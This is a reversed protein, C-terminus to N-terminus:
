ALRNALMTNPTLQVFVDASKLSEIAGVHQFAVHPLVPALEACLQELTFSAKPRLVLKQGRDGSADMATILLADQDAHFWLLANGKATRDSMVGDGVLNLGQEGFIAALSQVM